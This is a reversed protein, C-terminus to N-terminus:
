ERDSTVATVVASMHEEWPFPKLHPGTEESETKGLSESTHSQSVCSLNWTQAGSVRPFAPTHVALKGLTFRGDRMLTAM